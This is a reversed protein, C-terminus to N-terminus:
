KKWIITKGKEVLYLKENIIFYVKEGYLTAEIINGKRRTIDFLKGNSVISDKYVIFTFDGVCEINQGVISCKTYSLTDQAKLEVNSLILIFLSILGKRFHNSKIVFFMAVFVMNVLILKYHMLASAIIFVTLYIIYKVYKNATYISRLKESQSIEYRIYSAFGGISALSLVINAIIVSKLDTEFSLKYSIFFLTLTALLTAIRIIAKEM